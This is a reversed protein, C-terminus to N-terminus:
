NSFQKSINQFSVLSRYSTCSKQLSNPMLNEKLKQSNIVANKKQKKKKAYYFKFGFFSIFSNQEFKNQINFYLKRKIKNINLTM